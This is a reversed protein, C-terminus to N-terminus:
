IRPDLCRPTDPDVPPTIFAILRCSNQVHARTTQEDFCSLWPSHTQRGFDIEEDLFSLDSSVGHHPMHLRTAPQAQFERRYTVPIARMENCQQVPKATRRSSKGSM